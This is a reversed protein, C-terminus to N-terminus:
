KRAKGAFDFVAKYEGDLKLKASFEKGAKSTFGKIEPTVGKAALASLQTDTLKKGAVTRWLVFGCEKTCGIGKEFLHLRQQRCKPCLPMKESQEDRQSKVNAEVELLEATISRALAKTETLFQALSLRGAQIQAMKKEWDGTLAPSGVAKDKVIEYTALGKGTPVLQKKVREVYQKDIINKIVADRTAPTGLGGEKM